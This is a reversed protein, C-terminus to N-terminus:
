GRFEERKEETEYELGEHGVSFLELMLYCVYSNIHGYVFCVYPM